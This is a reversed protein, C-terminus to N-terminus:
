DTRVTRTSLWPAGKYIGPIEQKTVRTHIEMFKEWPVGHVQREWAVGPDCAAYVVECTYDFAQCLALYPLLEEASSNTNDVIINGRYHVM